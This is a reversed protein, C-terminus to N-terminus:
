VLTLQISRLFRFQMSITNFPDLLYDDQKTSLIVKKGAKVSVTYQWFIDGNSMLEHQGSRCIIVNASYAIELPWSLLQM